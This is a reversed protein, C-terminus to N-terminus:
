REQAAVQKRLGAKLSELESELKLIQTGTKKIRELLDLAPDVFRSPLPVESGEAHRAIWEYLADVEDTRQQLDPPLKFVPMMLSGSYQLAALSFNRLFEDHELTGVEYPYDQDEGGPRAFEKTRGLVARFLEAERGSLEVTGSDVLEEVEAAIGGYMSALVEHIVRDALKSDYELRFSADEEVEKRVQERVYLRAREGDIALPVLFGTLKEVFEGYSPVSARNSEV